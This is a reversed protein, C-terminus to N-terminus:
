FLWFRVNELSKFSTGSDFDIYCNGDADIVIWEPATAALAGSFTGITAIVQRAPGLPLQFFIDDTASVPDIAGRFEVLGNPWVRYAADYYVGGFIPAWGNLLDGSINIWKPSLIALDSPLVYDGPPAAAYMLKVKKIVHINESTSDTLPIPDAAKYTIIPVWYLQQGGVVAVHQVDFECVEGKYVMNGAVTTAFGGGIAFQPDTLFYSTGCFATLAMTTEVISEVIHDRDDDYFVEIGAGADTRTIKKM